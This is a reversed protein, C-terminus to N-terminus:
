VQRRQWSWTSQVSYKSCFTSINYDMEEEVHLIYIKNRPVHASAAPRLLPFIQLFLTGQFPKRLRWTPLFSFFLIMFIMFLLTLDENKLFMFWAFLTTLSWLLDHSTQFLDVGSDVKFISDLLQFTQNAGGGFSIIQCFKDLLLHVMTLCIIALKNMKTTAKKRVVGWNRTWRSSGMMIARLFWVLEWSSRREDTMSLMLHCVSMSVM